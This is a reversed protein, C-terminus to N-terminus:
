YIASGSQTENMAPYLLPHPLWRSGVCQRWNHYYTSAESSSEFPLRATGPPGDVLLGIHDLVKTYEAVDAKETGDIGMVAAALSSSVAHILGFRVHRLL